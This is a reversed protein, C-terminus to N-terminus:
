AHGGVFIVDGTGNPLIIKEPKQTGDINELWRTGEVDKLFEIPVYVLWDEDRGYKSLKKYKKPAFQWTWVKIMNPM